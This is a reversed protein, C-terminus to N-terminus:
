SIYRHRWGYQRLEGVREALRRDNCVVAGGDGIAGLNKTPYFSFAALEGLTGVTRGDVTAGHAQACDEVVALGHRRAVALVAAMDAPQGYLHVPIIAKLRHASHQNVTDALKNVDITFSAPDIDVLVPTAGALEIAAVTAVATHSVTVVTDGM